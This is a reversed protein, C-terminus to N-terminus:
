KKDQQSNLQFRVATITMTDHEYSDRHIPESSKWAPYDYDFSYENQNPSNPHRQIWRHPVWDSDPANAEKQCYLIADELTEYATICWDGWYRQQQEVVVYITKNQTTM